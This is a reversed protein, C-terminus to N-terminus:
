QRMFLSDILFYDFSDSVFVLFKCYALHQALDM